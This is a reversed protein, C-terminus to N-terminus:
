DDTEKVEIRRCLFEVRIRNVDRHGGPLVQVGGEAIPFTLEMGDIFVQHPTVVADPLGDSM